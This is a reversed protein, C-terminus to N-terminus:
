IFSIFILETIYRAFIYEEPSISLKRDGMIMQLDYVIYMSFVVAGGVALIFNFFEGRYFISILSGVTLAMIASIMM